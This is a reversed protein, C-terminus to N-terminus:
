DLQIKVVPIHRLHKIKPPTQLTQCVTCMNKEIQGILKDLLEQSADPSSVKFLMRFNSLRRKPTIEWDGEVETEIDKVTKGHKELLFKLSDAACAGLSIMLADPPTISKVKDNTSLMIEKGNKNKGSWLLDSLGHVKVSSVKSLFRNCVQTTLM